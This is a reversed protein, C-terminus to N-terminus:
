HKRRAACAKSINRHLNNRHRGLHVGYLRRRTGGSGGGSREGSGGDISSAVSALSSLGGAGDQNEVGDGQPSSGPNLFIRSCAQTLRRRRPM